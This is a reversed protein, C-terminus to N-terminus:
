RRESPFDRLLAHVRRDVSRAFYGEMEYWEKVLWGLESWDPHKEKREAVMSGIEESWSRRQADQISYTGYLGVLYIAVHELKRFGVFIMRMTMADLGTSRQRIGMVPSVPLVLTLFHIRDRVEETTDKVFTRFGMDNSIVITDVVM